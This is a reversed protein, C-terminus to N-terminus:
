PGTRCLAWDTLMATSGPEVNRVFGAMASAGSQKDFAWGAIVDPGSGNWGTAYTPSGALMVGNTSYRLDVMKHPGGPSVEAIGAIAMNGASDFRIGLPQDAGNPQAGAHFYRGWAPLAMSGLPPAIAFHYKFTFWQMNAAGNSTGVVVVDGNPAIDAGHLCENAVGAPAFSSYWELRWNPSFKAVFLDLDVGSYTSGALVIKNTIPDVVLDSLSINVLPVTM